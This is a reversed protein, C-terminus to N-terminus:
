SPWGPHGSIRPETAYYSSSPHEREFWLDWGYRLLVERTDDAWSLGMTTRAREEMHARTMRALHETRLDNAGTLFFPTSVWWIRAALSDRDACGLRGLRHALEEDVLLRPDEWECRESDPMSALAQRFATSAAMFDGNVHLAYGALAGCWWREAACERATTIADDLRNAEVLYRVRQGVIWDNGPADRQARELDDLLRQRAEVTRRSEPPAHSVDDGEDSWYCIRGIVGDCGNAPRSSGWPLNARRTLEFSMQANRADKVARASDRPPAPARQENSALAQLAAFLFSRSWLGLLLATGGTTM